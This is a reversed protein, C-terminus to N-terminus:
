SIGDVIKFFGECVQFSTLFKALISTSITMFFFGSNSML